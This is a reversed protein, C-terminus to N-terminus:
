SAFKRDFKKIIDILEDAGSDMLTFVKQKCHHIASVKPTDSIIKFCMVREAPAVMRAFTVFGSAEMDYVYGGKYTSEVRDVTMVDASRIECAPDVPLRWYRRTSHDVVQRAMIWNNIPFAASGAIGVNIWIDDVAKHSTM